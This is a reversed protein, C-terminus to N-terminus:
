LIEPALGSPQSTRRPWSSMLRPTPLSRPAVINNAKQQVRGLQARVIAELQENM